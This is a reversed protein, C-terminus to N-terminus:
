LSADVVHVKERRIFELTERVSNRGRLALIRNVSNLFQLKNVLLSMQTRLRVLTDAYETPVHETLQSLTYQQAERLTIGLTVSMLKFRQLECETMRQSLRAQERAISEIKESEFRILAQQQREAQSVVQELLEREINLLEILEKHLINNAM